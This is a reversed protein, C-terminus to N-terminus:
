TLKGTFTMDSARLTDLLDVRSLYPFDGLSMRCIRVTLEKFTIICHLAASSAGHFPLRFDTLVHVSQSYTCTANILPKGPHMTAPRPAQRLQM